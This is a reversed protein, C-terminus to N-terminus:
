ASHCRVTHHFQTAAGPIKTEYWLDWLAWGRELLNKVYYRHGQGMKEIQAMRSEAKHCLIKYGAALASNQLKTFAHNSRTLKSAEHQYQHRWKDWKEALPRHTMRFAAAM